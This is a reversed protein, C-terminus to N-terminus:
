LQSLCRLELETNRSSLLEACTVSSMPVEAEGDVYHFYCCEDGSLQQPSQAPVRPPFRKCVAIM